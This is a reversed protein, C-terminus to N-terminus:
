KEPEKKGAENRAKKLRQFTEVATKAKQKEGLQQYVRSLTYHPEPYNADLKVAQELSAAAERYRRQKELLQGLQYHTQPLREDYRLSERLLDEAEKLENKAILTIALNLPPWASSVAQQRNLAIAQRFSRIAEDSRGLYDYCLGLNDHARTMQADLAIAKEFGAIAENYQQRDYAIRGLWYPYLAEKPFETMLKELEPAAWDRHNLQLYAMTLTFRSRQDLPAIKEAKKYAIACNLYQGDLFFLGAVSVLMAATRPSSPSQNIEEVLITQARRYDRQAVAAELQSQRAADQLLKKPSPSIPPLELQLDPTQALTARLGCWVLFFSHAIFKM